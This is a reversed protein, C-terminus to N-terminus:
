QKLRKCEEVYGECSTFLGRVANECIICRFAFDRCVLCFNSGGTETLCRPCTIAQAVTAATQRGDDFWPGDGAPNSGFGHPTSALHKNLEARTTLLGWSFLLDAYRRIYTDFKDDQNSPLLGRHQSLLPKARSRAGSIHPRSQLVCVITSLMQADGLAEYYRLLNAVM